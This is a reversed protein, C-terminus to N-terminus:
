EGAHQGTWCGTMQREAADLQAPSDAAFPGVLVRVRQCRPCRARFDIIM